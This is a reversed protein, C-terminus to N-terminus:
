QKMSTVRDACEALFKREAEKTYEHPFEGLSKPSEGTLLGYFVCATLFAGTESQHNGDSWHLPLEPRDALALDWARGIPAVLTGSEDAMKQYIQEQKAGDGEVGHLGWESYFFVTAGQKKATAAFDIGEQKSYDFKGSQSIKQAQLIVFKWPRTEIEEKFRPERAVQELFGIGMVHTYVKKEPHRFHIMKAVLGPIDHMSTHSNGVFLASIDAERVKAVDSTAPGNNTPGYNSSDSSRKDCGIGLLLLSLLLIRAGNKM